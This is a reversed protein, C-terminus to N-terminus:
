QTLADILQRSDPAGRFVSWHGRSGVIVTPASVGDPASKRIVCVSGGIKREIARHESPNKLIECAACGEREFVVVCGACPQPQCLYKADELLAAYEAAFDERHGVPMTSAVFAASALGILVGSIVGAWALFLPAVRGIALILAAAISGGAAILCPVCWSSSDAMAKVLVIHFGALATGLLAGVRVTRELALLAITLCYLLGGTLGVLRHLLVESSQCAVCNSSILLGTGSAGAAVVLALGAAM